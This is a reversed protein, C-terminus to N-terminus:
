FQGAHARVLPCSHGFHVAQETLAAVGLRMGQIVQQVGHSTREDRRALVEFRTLEAPRM